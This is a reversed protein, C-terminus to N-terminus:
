STQGIMGELDIEYRLTALTAFVEIMTTAVSSGNSWRQVLATSGLGVGSRM